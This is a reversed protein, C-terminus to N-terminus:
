RRLLYQLSTMNIPPRVHKNDIVDISTNGIKIVVNILAEFRLKRFKNSTTWIRLIRPKVSLKTIQVVVFGYYM